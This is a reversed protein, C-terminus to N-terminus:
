AYDPLFAVFPPLEKSDTEAGEQIGTVESLTNRGVESEKGM